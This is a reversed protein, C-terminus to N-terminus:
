DKWKTKIMLSVPQLELLKRIKVKGRLQRGRYFRVDTQAQEDRNQRLNCWTKIERAV